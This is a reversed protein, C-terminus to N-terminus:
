IHEAEWKYPPHQPPTHIPLQTYGTWKKGLASYRHSFFPFSVALLVRDRELLDALKHLLRGRSSVDLSRWPSGRQGAARAAEVAKDVDAQCWPIYLCVVNFDQVPKLEKLIICCLNLWVCVAWGLGALMAAAAVDHILWIASAAAPPRCCIDAGAWCGGAAAAHTLEYCNGVEDAEEVDCINVGTAPNVAQFTKGNISKHWENNIFIQQIFIFLFYVHLRPQIVWSSGRFLKM